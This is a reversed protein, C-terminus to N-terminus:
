QNMNNYILTQFNTSKQLTVTEVENINKTMSRCTNKKNANNTCVKELQVNANRFNKQHQISFTM